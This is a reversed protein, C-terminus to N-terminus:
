EEFRQSWDQDSLEYDDICCQMLKAKEILYAILFHSATCSLVLQQGHWHRKEVLAGGLNIMIPLLFTDGVLIPPSNDSSFRVSEQGLRELKDKARLVVITKM